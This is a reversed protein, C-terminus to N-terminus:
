RSLSFETAKKRTIDKEYAKCIENRIAQIHQAGKFNSKYDYDQNESASFFYNLEVSVFDCLTKIERILRTEKANAKGSRLYEIPDHLVKRGTSSERMLEAVLYCFIFRTLGYRAVQQHKLSSVYPKATEDIIQALRIRAADVDYSFIKSELDGFIRYKQHASWPEKVYISLLLRGALENSFEDAKAEEGRKITYTSYKGFLYSSVEQPPVVRTYLTSNKRALQNM